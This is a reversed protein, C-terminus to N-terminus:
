ADKWGGGDSDDDDDSSNGAGNADAEARKEERRSREDEPMPKEGNQVPGDAGFEVGATEEALKQSTTKARRAERERLEAATTAEAQWRAKEAEEITKADDYEVNLNKVTAKASRYHIPAPAFEAKGDRAETGLAYVGVLGVVAGAAPFGITAQAAFWGGGVLGISGLIFPWNVRGFLDALAGFGSDPADPAAPHVLTPNWKLHAPTHVLVDDSEPDAVFKEDFDGETDVRTSLDLDDLTAADAFYRAIAPRIGTAPLGLTGDEREIGTMSQVREYTTDYIDEGTPSKAETLVDQEFLFRKGPAGGAEIYGAFAIFAILVGWVMPINALVSSAFMYLSAGIAITLIVGVIGYTMMSYGPGRGIENLIHRGVGFGGLMGVVGVGVVNLLVYHWLDGKDNIGAPESAPDTRQKINTWRAGEIPDGDGDTLWMTMQVQSDYHPVLSVNATSYGTGLTTDVKQRTVNTAVTETTTGGSETTSQRETVEYYAVHLTVERPEISDGFRTSYLSIDNTNLVTGASLYKQESSFPAAPNYTIAVAGLDLRRVGPPAEGGVANGPRRLEELSLSGNSSESASGQPQPTSTPTSAPTETSNASPTPTVVDPGDDQAVAVTAVSPLLLMAAVLAVFCLHVRSTHTSTM